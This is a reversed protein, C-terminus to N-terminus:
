DLHIFAGPRLLQMARQEDIWDDNGGVIRALGCRADSLTRGDRVVAVGLEEKPYNLGDSGFGTRIMRSYVVYTVGATQFSVQTEGGGSYGAQAWRMQGAGPTAPYALEVKGPVGFRYQVGAHASANAACLAIQKTRAACQFLPVEPPRCLSALPPAPPRARAKPASQGAEASLVLLLAITAASTRAM